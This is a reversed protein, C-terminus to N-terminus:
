EGGSQSLGQGGDVNNFSDVTGMREFTASVGDCDLDGVARATFWASKGTGGSIFEYRYQHPEDIAFNLAQWGPQKWQEPDPDYHDKGGACPPAAPTLTASPPFSRPLSNGSADLHEGDYYAVAAEYMRRVNTTAESTRARREYKLYAPIAVAALMGALAAGGLAGGEGTRLGREDLVLSAALPAGGLAGDLWRIAAESEPGRAKMAAEFATTSVTFAFVADGDLAKAVPTGALSAAEGDLAAEITAPSLAALLVDDARVLVIEQGGPPRVRIGPHGRLTFPESAIGAARRKELIAKLVADARAGDVVGAAVLIESPPAGPTAPLRVASLIHGSFAAVLDDWSAGLLMPLMNKALLLQGKAQAQSSPLLAAVGDFVEALNVTFRLAAWGERPVFRSFRPSPHRPAAIQRLAGAGEPSALLRLGGGFDTGIALAVSRFRDVYERAIGAVAADKLGPLTLAPAGSGWAYLGAPVAVDALADRFAPEDPLTGRGAGLFADFTRRAEALRADDFARPIIAAVTLEGRQGVLVRQGRVTALESPGAKAALEVQVGVKGLVGVLKERDLIRAAILPVPANPDPAFFRADLAFAWGVAPDLGAQRWGDATTPDFGLQAALKTRDLLWDPAGERLAPPLRAATDLAAGTIAELGQAGILLMTQGGDFAAAAAPLGGSRRSGALVFWALGAALAALAFVLVVKKM